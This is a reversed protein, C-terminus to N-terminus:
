VGDDIIEMIKKTFQECQDEEFLVAKMGESLAGEIDRKLSDGIMICESPKCGLKRVITEFAKQAPKEEGIEESTVLADVYSDLKLEVIKRHQIQATLDTLIGISIKRGVLMEMLPIVYDFLKMNQLMADWYINYLELAGGVPKQDIEELFLQMYLMRNHSAATNGLQKKVKKKANDFANDFEGERLGYEECAFCRLTKMALNNCYEYNYVTDDLDFIVAKIM